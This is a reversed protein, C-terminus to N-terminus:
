EEKQKDRRKIRLHKTKWDIERNKRAQMIDRKKQLTQRQLDNLKSEDEVENDDSMAIYDVIVSIIILM